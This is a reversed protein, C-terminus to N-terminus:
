EFNESNNVINNYVKKIWNVFEQKSHNNKAINCFGCCPVANNLSYGKNNDLRDLGNYVYIGYSRGTSKAYQYPECGCYYCNQKTLFMFEDRTLSFEVNKDNARTKYTYFLRNFANEGFKLRKRRLCGCSKCKGSILGTRSTIIINKEECDCICKWKSKGVYELVTLHSFIKGVLNEMRKIAKEKRLCGCSRIGNKSKLNNTNVISTRGCDCNCFWFQGVKEETHDLRIVELRGFKQGILNIQRGM